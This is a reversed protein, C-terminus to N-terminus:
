QSGSSTFSCPAGDFTCGSPQTPQGNVTVVLQAGGQGGQASSGGAGSAADAGSPAASAESSQGDPGNQTGQGGPGAQGGPAAPGNSGSSGDSNPGGPGQAVGSDASTPQWGAGQVSVIRAGPYSFALRWSGGTARALGSITIQDVFGGSWQQTRSYGIQVRQAQDQHTRGTGGRRGSAPANPRDGTSPGSTAPSGPTIPVGPRASALTGGHPSHQVVCHGVSCQKFPASFHLVTKTMNAALAAAVVVGLGAAFTPTVM